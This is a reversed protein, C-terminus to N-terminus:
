SVAPRATCCPSTPSTAVPSPPSRSSATSCCPWSSPPWCARPSWGSSRISVWSRWPRSRTESPAPRRAGLLHGIGRGRGALLATVIPSAERVTGIADVAGVFSAAGIQGALGGVELVIVLGFPVAILVAPLSRSRRSSGPSTSSSRWAFRGHALERITAAVTDLVMAYLAGLSEVARRGGGTLSKVTGFAEEFPTTYANVIDDSTLGSSM